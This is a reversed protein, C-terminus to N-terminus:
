KLKTIMGRKNGFSSFGVPTAANKFDGTEAKDRKQNLQIKLEVV